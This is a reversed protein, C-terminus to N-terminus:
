QEMQTATAARRGVRYTDLRNHWGALWRQENREVPANAVRQSLVARASAVFDALPTDSSLTMGQLVQLLGWGAGAYRESPNSGDGKFHMYDILAYTGARPDEALISVIKQELAAREAVAVTDLMAALGAGFRTVIFRTQEPMTDQLMGRLESLEPGDVAAMFGARDPWPQERDNLVLWAPLTVGAADLQDLLAPFTEVFAEQQGARYWIFHGLGLSPFDEGENWSTLCRPQRNCENAFIRDGLWELEDQDLVPMVPQAMAGSSFIM